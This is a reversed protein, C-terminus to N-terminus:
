FSFEQFCLFPVLYIVNSCKKRIISEGNEDFEKKTIWYKEMSPTNYVNALVAGGIYVSYKRRPSDIIDIDIKITKNEVNQLGKERYIKKMEIMLRSAYGAFM